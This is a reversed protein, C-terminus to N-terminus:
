TRCRPRAAHAAPLDAREDGCLRAAPRPARAPDPAPGRLVNVFVPIFAAIAAVAMRGFQSSAGFMTNLVPAIAVIPMVALAAVLPTSCGTSRARRGRRAGALVVALLSGVVLGILANRRPSRMDEVIIDWRLVLEAGIAAPSPLM